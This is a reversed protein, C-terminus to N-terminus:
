IGREKPKDLIHIPIEKGRIIMGFNELVMMQEVVAPPIYMGMGYCDFTNMIANLQGKAQFCLKAYADDSIKPYTM